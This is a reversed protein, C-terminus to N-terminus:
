VDIAGQAMRAKATSTVGGGTSSTAQAWAVADPFRAKIVYLDEWTASAEPVHSWKVLVQPVAQNGKKVLRRDLVREPQLDQISLDVLKPLDTYVPAFNPTFPKLQSVHFVPHILSHAPLNLRYAAAGIKETITFPSFFKYALKPTLVVSWRSSCM